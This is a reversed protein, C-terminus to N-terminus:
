ATTSDAVLYFRHSHVVLPGHSMRGHLDRLRPRYTAMAFGPVQWPTISLLQVVAGVDLFTTPVLVEGAGRVRLGADTVQRVATDLDWHAYDHAPAGLLENLDALDQGGVQQTVFAGGPRLVRAVESADFSQHRDLVLDFRRDPYPLRDDDGVEDVEIGRSALAARAVAVNPRYGETARADAPLDEFTCLLEGGGTGLDLVAAGSLSTVSCAM